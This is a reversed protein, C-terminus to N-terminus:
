APADRVAGVVLRVGRVRGPLDTAGTYDRGVIVVAGLVLVLGLTTLALAHPVTVHLLALTAALGAIVVAVRRLLRCLRLFRETLDALEQVLASHGVESPARDTLSARVADAGIAWGALVTGDEGQGLRALVQDIRGRVREIAQLDVLRLLLDLGRRVARLGWRTLRGPIDLDLEEGLSPLPDPVRQVIPQLTKDLVATAVEAATSAMEDLATRAADVLPLPVGGPSTDFGQVLASEADEAELADATGELALVASELRDTQEPSAVASEAALLTNGIGLQSLAVALVDEDTPQGGPGTDFGQVPSEIARVANLELRDLATEVDGQGSRVKRLLASAANGVSRADQVSNTRATSEM